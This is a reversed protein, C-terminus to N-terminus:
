YRYVFQHGLPYFLEVFALNANEPFNYAYIRRAYQLCFTAGCKLGITYRLGVDVSRHRIKGYGTFHHPRINKNGGSGM